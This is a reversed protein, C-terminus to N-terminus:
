SRRRVGSSKLLGVESQMVELHIRSARANAPVVIHLCACPGLADLASAPPLPPTM